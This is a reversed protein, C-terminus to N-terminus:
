PLSLDRNFRMYCSTPQQLLLPLVATSSYMCHVLLYACLMTYLVCVPMPVLLPVCLPTCAQMYVFSKCLYICLTCLSTINLVVHVRGFPNNYQRTQQSSIATPPVFTCVMYIYVLHLYHVFMHACSMYILQVYLGSDQTGGLSAMASIHLQRTYLMYM